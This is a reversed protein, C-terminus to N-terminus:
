RAIFALVALVAQRCRRNTKSLIQKRRSTTHTYTHTYMHMCKGLYHTCKTNQWKQKPALSRRAVQSRVSCSGMLTTADEKLGWKTQTRLGTRIRFQCFLASPENWTSCHCSLRACLKIDKMKVQSWRENGQLIGCALVMGLCCAFFTSAAGLQDQPTQLITMANAHRQGLVDGLVIQFSCRLFSPWVVTHM